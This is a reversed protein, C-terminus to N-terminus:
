AADRRLERVARAAEAAAVDDTADSRDQVARLTHFGLSIRALGEIVTRDDKGPDQGRLRDLLATDIEITTTRAAVTEAYQGRPRREVPTDANPL